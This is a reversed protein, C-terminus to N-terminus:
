PFTVVGNSGAFGFLGMLAILGLILGPHNLLYRKTCGTNPTACLSVIQRHFYSDETNNSFLLKDTGTFFSFIHERIGIIPGVKNNHM